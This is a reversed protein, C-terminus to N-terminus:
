TGAELYACTEVVREDTLKTVGDLWGALTSRTSLFYALFARPSVFPNEACEIRAVNM